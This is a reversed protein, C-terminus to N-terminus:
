KHDLVNLHREATSQLVAEICSFFNLVCPVRLNYWIQLGQRRDRVLGAQKLTSLHRSVTSTDAGIMRTLDSVCREGRSLEEIIFLRTPHALARLIDARAELKHQRDSDM